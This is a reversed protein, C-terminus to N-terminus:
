LALAYMISMTYSCELHIHVAKNINYDSFFNLFILSQMM